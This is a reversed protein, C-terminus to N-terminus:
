FAYPASQPGYVKQPITADAFEPRATFCIIQLEGSRDADVRHLIKALMAFDEPVMEASGPQDILLFGPHRGLGAQLGLHMMALFFALKVRLREGQNQIRGFSVPVGNKRLELKGLASCSVDSISVAGIQRAMEETSEGLKDLMVQNRQDAVERLVERVKRIIRARMDLPNEEADPTARDQAHGLAAQIRGIEGYLRVRENEEEATPLAYVIGHRAAAQVAISDASLRQLEERLVGLRDNMKARVQEDRQVEDELHNADEEMARIEDVPAAHVGKGCLRCSHLTREREIAEEEITTDCNPCLSVDIGTFHLRLSIAQRLHRARARTRLIRASLDNKEMELGSREINFRIISDQIDTIQRAPEGQEVTRRRTTIKKEIIAIAECIIALEAKLRNVDSTAQSMVEASKKQQHDIERKLTSADVMLRNLAQAFSLGLFSSLILGDQNGTAHADDCILYQDGGGPIQLAQFYTLWSTSREAVTTSTRDQQTWSLASLGLRKFFFSQMEAQFAGAGNAHVMLPYKEAEEFPCDVEGAILAAELTSSQQILVTYPADDLTFTVWINKIWDRVDSDYDSNDGTLAFKLTKMISSKGVDNRPVLLVNVGGHFHQDYQIAQPAESGSLLKEGSFRLRKVVLRPAPKPSREEVLNLTEVFAAIEKKSTRERFRLALGAYTAEVIMDATLPKAKAELHCPTAAVPRDDSLPKIDVEPDSPPTFLPM